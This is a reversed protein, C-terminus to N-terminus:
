FKLILYKFNPNNSLITYFKAVAVFATQKYREKSKKERLNENRIYKM